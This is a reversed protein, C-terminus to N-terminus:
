YDALLVRITEADSEKLRGRPFEVVFHINLSGESCIGEHPVSKVENPSIIRDSVFDLERGDLLVLKKEFGTLAEALTIYFTTDLDKGDRYRFVSHPLVEIHVVLDGPLGVPNKVVINDKSYGGVVHVSYEGRIIEETPFMVFVDGLSKKVTHLKKYEYEVTFYGGSYLQELTLTLFSRGRTGRPGSMGLLHEFMDFFNCLPEKEGSLEQYANSIMQFKDNADPDKCKDPHYKLALKKYANKIEEPSSEPSVGLVEWPNKEMEEM